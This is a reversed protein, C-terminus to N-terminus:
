SIKVGLENKSKPILEYSSAISYIFKKETKFENGVAVLAYLYIHTCMEYFLFLIRSM